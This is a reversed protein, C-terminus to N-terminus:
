LVSRCSECEYFYICSDVPMTEEKVYGCVPCTIVSQLIIEPM